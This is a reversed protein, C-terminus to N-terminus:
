GFVWQLKGRFKVSEQKWPASAACWCRERQSPYTLWPSWYRNPRDPSNAKRWYEFWLKDWEPDKESTGRGPQTVQGYVPQREANPDRPAPKSKATKRHAGAVQSKEIM